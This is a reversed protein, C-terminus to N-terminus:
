SMTAQMYYMAFSRTTGGIEEIHMFLYLPTTSAPIDTTYTGVVTGDLTV